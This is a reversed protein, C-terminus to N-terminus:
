ELTRKFGLIGFTIAAISFIAIALLDGGVYALGQGKLLISRLAHVAYYEPNIVTIWRLWDPM